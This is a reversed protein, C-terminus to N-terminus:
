QFKIGLSLNVHTVNEMPIDYTKGGARVKSFIGAILNAQFTLWVYPVVKVDFGTGISLGASQGTIGIFNVKDKYMLYGFGLSKNFMFSNNRNISRHNYSFGAFNFQIKETVSRISTGGYMTPFAVSDITAQSNFQRFDFGLGKRKPFYVVLSMGGSYGSKLDNYFAKEETNGSPITATYHGYGGIFALSATIPQNPKKAPRITDIVSTVSNSGIYYTKSIASNHNFTYSRVNGTPITNNLISDNSKITYRINFKRISTIKCRISDNKVTIMLDQSSANLCAATLLISFFINRM